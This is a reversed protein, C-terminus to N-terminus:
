RGCINKFDCYGCVTEDGTRRFSVSTDYMEDLLAALGATMENYFTENMDVTVPPNRFLAATSYVSNCIRRGAVESREKMLMDYIFFQLAIKPRDKVDPAFIKQAIAVANTDDIEEDDKLVKGTKYDVVRAQDSAFSDVRDVFGKFRQGHFEGEVRLELGLIEFSDLGASMLQDLDTQLTKMVYLVIVDAVVLNRGAVEVTNLQEMIQAKVM